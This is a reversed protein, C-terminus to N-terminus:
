YWAHFGHGREGWFILWAAGDFDYAASLLAKSHAPLAEEWAAVDRHSDWPHEPVFDSEERIRQGEKRLRGIEAQMDGIAWDKFELYTERFHMVLRNQMRQGYDIAEEATHDEYAEHKLEDTLCESYGIVKGRFSTPGVLMFGTVTSKNYDVLDIVYKGHEHELVKEWPQSWFKVFHRNPIEAAEPGTVHAHAEEYQKRFWETAKEDIGIRPAGLTAAPTTSVQELEARLKNIEDSDECDELQARIAVFEAAKGAAPKDRLCWDLGM